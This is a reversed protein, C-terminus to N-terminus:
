IVEAEKLEGLEEDGLGLMEALVQESDGGIVPPTRYQWDHTSMKIPNGVFRLTGGLQHEIEITMGRHQVQPDALAEDLRNVKAALLDAARLEELWEASPRQAFVAGILEMLEEQHEARLKPDGFREDELWQPQKMVEVLRAWSKQDYVAIVIYADDSCRYAAYSPSHGGSGQPGPIAGDLFYYAAFYPIMAIQGDLLGIDIAASPAAGRERDRIAAQIAIVMWMGGALDAVPLGMRAPPQGPHGTMSMGGSIAQAILDVGPRSAYPGTQGFASLQAYIIEPNVERLEEYSIHLRDMVGPRFNNFVVDAKEVMELFLRHGTESKLDLTMSRKGRNLAMYHADQGKYYHRVMGGPDYGANSGPAEVKIVDAGLDALIMTCYPGALHWSLDLVTIGELPGSRKAETALNSDATPSESM